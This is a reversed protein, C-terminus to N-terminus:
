SKGTTLDKMCAVPTEFGFGIRRRVEPVPVNTGALRKEKLSVLPNDKKKV